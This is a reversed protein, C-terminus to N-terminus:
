CRGWGGRGRRQALEHALEGAALDVRHDAGGADGSDGHGGSDDVLDADLLIGLVEEEHVGHARVDGTDDAGGDGGTDEEAGEAASSAEGGTGRPASRGAGHGAFRVAWLSM